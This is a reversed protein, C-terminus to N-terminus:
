GSLYAVKEGTNWLKQSYSMQLATKPRTGKALAEPAVQLPKGDSIWREVEYLRGERCLQHLPKIEELSQALLPEGDQGEAM